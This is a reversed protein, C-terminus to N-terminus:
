KQLSKDKKYKNRISYRSTEGSKSIELHDLNLYSNNTVSKNKNLMNRKLLTTRFINKEKEKFTNKEKRKKNDKSLIHFHEKNDKRIFSKNNLKKENEKSENEDIRNEKIINNIKKNKFYLKKMEKIDLKKKNIFFNSSLRNKKHTVTGNEDQDNKNYNNNDNINIIIQKEKKLNNNINIEINNSDIIYNNNKKKNSDTNKKININDFIKQKNVNIYRCKYRNNIEITKINNNNIISENLNNLNLDTTYKNSINKTESNNLSKNNIEEIQKRKQFYAKTKYWLKNTKSASNDFNLKNMKKNIIIEKITRESKNRKEILKNNNNKKKNYFFFRTTNAKQPTQFIDLSDRALKNYDITNNSYFYNNNNNNNLTTNISINYNKSNINNKDRNKDLKMINFSSSIKPKNYVINVNTLIIRSKQEISKKKNDNNIINYFNENTRESLYTLTNSNSITNAHTNITKQNFFNNYDDNFQYKIKNKFISKEDNLIDFNLLDTNCRKSSSDIEKLFYNPNKKFNFIKTRRSIKKNVSQLLQNQYSNLIPSTYLYQKPLNMLPPCQNYIFEYLKKNGGCKIFEIEKESLSKIDNKILISSGGPFLMHVMACKGCIFIGNNISIYEPDKRGCDFCYNNLDNEKFNLYNLTFIPYQSNNKLINLSNCMM